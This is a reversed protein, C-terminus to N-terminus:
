RPGVRGESGADQAAILDFWQYIRYLPLSCVTTLCGSILWDFVGPLFLPNKDHWRSVIWFLIPASLSTAGVMLMFYTPGGWFVRERIFFMFLMLALCFILLPGLPFATFPAVSLCLLYTVLTAEWLPRTVSGYVLAVLWFMPAPFHGLVLFWLSTQVATLLVATGIM